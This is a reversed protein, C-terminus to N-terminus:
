PVGEPSSPPQRFLPSVDTNEGRSDPGPLRRKRVPVPTQTVSYRHLISKLRPFSPSLRDSLGRHRLGKLLSQCFRLIPSGPYLCQCTWYSLSRTCGVVTCTCVRTSYVRICKYHPPTPRDNSPGKDQHRRSGMLVVSQRRRTTGPCGGVCSTRPGTTTPAPSETQSM